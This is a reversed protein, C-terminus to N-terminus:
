IHAKIYALSLRKDPDKELVKLLFDNLREKEAIFEPIEYECRSINEFLDYISNGGFPYDGTVLHFLTVGCAWIDVKYGTHIYTYIHM